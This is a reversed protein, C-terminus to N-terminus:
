VGDSKHRPKKQFVYRMIHRWISAFGVGSVIVVIIFPLIYYQDQNLPIYLTNIYLTVSVMLIFFVEVDSKKKLQKYIVSSLGLFFVSLNM